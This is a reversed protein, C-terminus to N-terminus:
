ADAFDRDKAEQVKALRAEEAAKMKEENAKDFKAKVKTVGEMIKGKNTVATAM